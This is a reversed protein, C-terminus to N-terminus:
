AAISDHSNARLRFFVNDDSAMPHTCRLTSTFHLQQTHCSGAKLTFFFCTGPTRPFTLDSFFTVHRSVLPNILCMSSYFGILKNVKPLNTTTTTSSIHITQRDDHQIPCLCATPLSSFSIINCWCIVWLDQWLPFNIGQHWSSFFANTGSLWEQPTVIILINLNLSSPNSPYEWLSNLRLPLISHTNECHDMLLSTNWLSTHGTVRVDKIM